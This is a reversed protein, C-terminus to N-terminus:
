DDEGWCGAGEGLRPINRRTRARRGIAEARAVIAKRGQYRFSAIPLPPHKLWTRGALSEEVLLCFYDAIRPLPIIPSPYTREGPYTDAWPAEEHTLKELGPASFQGYANLVADLLEREDPPYDDADFDVPPDIARFRYDKYDQYIPPVVPGHDWAEISEPYLPEGGHLAAHFGQAYYLLKQLKLNSINDGSEQDFTGLFYRSVERATLM